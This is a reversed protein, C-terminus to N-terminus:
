KSCQNLVEQTCPRTSPARHHTLGALDQERTKEKSRVSSTQKTKQQNGDGRVGLQSKSSAIPVQPAIDPPSVHEGGPIKLLSPLM